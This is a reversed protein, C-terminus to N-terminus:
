WWGRTLGYAVLLLAAYAAAFIGVLMLGDALAKPDIWAFRM